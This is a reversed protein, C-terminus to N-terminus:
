KRLLSTAQTCPLFTNCKSSTVKNNGIENLKHSVFLMKYGLCLFAVTKTGFKAYGFRVNRESDDHFGVILCIKECGKNQRKVNQM